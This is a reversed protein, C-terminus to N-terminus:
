VESELKKFIKGGSLCKRILLGTVNIEFRSFYM